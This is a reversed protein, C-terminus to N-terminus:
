ARTTTSPSPGTQRRPPDCALVVAREIEGPDYGISELVFRLREESGGAPLVLAGDALLGAYDVRGQEALDAALRLMWARVRDTPWEALHAALRHRSQRPATTPQREPGVSEQNEPELM